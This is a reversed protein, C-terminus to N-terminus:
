RNKYYDKKESVISQRQEPTLNPDSLRNGFDQGKNKYEQWNQSAGSNVEPTAEPSAATETNPTEVPTPAPAEPVPQQQASVEAAVNADEQAKQEAKATEAALATAEQAKKEAEALAAKKIEFKETVKAQVHTDVKALIKELRQNLREQKVAFNASTSAATVKQPQVLFLTAGLSIIAASLILQKKM